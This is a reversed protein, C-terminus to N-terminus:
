MLFFDRKFAIFVLNNFQNRIRMWMKIIGNFSSFYILFMNFIKLKFKTKLACALRCKNKTTAAFQSIIHM